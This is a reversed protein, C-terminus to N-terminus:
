WLGVGKEERTNATECLSRVFLPFVLFFFLSDQSFQPFHLLALRLRPFYRSRGRHDDRRRRMVDGGGGRKKRGEWPSEGGGGVGVGIRDGSWSRRPLCRGVRDRRGIMRHPRNGRSTRFDSDSEGWRTTRISRKESQIQPRLRDSRPGDCPPPPPPPSEGDRPWIQPPQAPPPAMSPLLSSATLHRRMPFAAASAPSLARATLNRELALRRSGERGMSWRSSGRRLWSSGGEDEAEDDDGCAGGGGGGRDDAAAADASSAVPLSPRLSLFCFPLFFSSSSLAPSLDYM